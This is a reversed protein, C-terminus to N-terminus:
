LMSAVSTAHVQYHPLAVAAETHPPVWKQRARVQILQRAELVQPWHTWIYPLARLSAREAVLSYLLIGIQRPLARALLYPAERTTTNKLLLLWQNKVADAKITSGMRQRLRLNTPLFQRPHIAQCAPEFVTRWGYLRGRWAIDWDEKHAFFHPDFFEGKVRLDDVFRRRFLPLAGDAGDVYITALPSVTSLRQGHLRLGFRGDPLARLGASDIRADQERSQLLLGCVTGIREDRAMTAMAHLVYDPEMEVDPNVLLVFDTSTHNLAYNHGGCFGTNEPLRHLQIRADAAALAAVKECTTDTSANDVVWLTFDPYTQPLVSQICAEITAASNWTVISLLLSPM